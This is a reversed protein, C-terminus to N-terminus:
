HGIVKFIKTESVTSRNEENLRSAEQLLANREQEVQALRTEASERASRAEAIEREMFEKLEENQQFM